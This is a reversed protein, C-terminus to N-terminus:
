KEMGLAWLFFRHIGYKKALAIKQDRKEQTEIFLDSPQARRESVPAGTKWDYGYAALGLRLKGVECESEGFKLVQEVWALPATEGPPTVKPFSFDYAMVLLEDYLPCLAKWDQAIAGDWSGQTETKAHVPLILRVDPKWRRLEGTLEASWHTFRDRDGAKLSEIDLVLSRCHEREMMQEIAPALVKPETQLVGPNWSGNVFNQLGCIEATQFRKKWPACDPNSVIKGQADLRDCFPVPEWAEPRQEFARVADGSFEGSVGAWFSDKTRQKWVWFSVFFIV